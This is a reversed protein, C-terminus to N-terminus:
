KSNIVTLTKNYSIELYFFGATQSGQHLFCKLDMVKRRIREFLKGKEVEFM